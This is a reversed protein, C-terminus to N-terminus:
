KWKETIIKVLLAEESLSQLLFIFKNCIVKMDRIQCRKDLYNTGMEQKPHVFRCKLKFHFLLPFCLIVSIPNTLKSLSFVISHEVTFAVYQEQHM